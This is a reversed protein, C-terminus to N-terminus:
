LYIIFNILEKILTPGISNEHSLDIQYNENNIEFLTHNFEIQYKENLNIYFNGILKLKKEIVGYINERRVWILDIKDSSNRFNNYDENLYMQHKIELDIDDFKYFGDPIIINKWSTGKNNSYRFNNNSLDKSINNQTEM